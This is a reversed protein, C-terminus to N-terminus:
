SWGEPIGEAKAGEEQSIPTLKFAYSGMGGSGRWQGLGNSKGLQLLYQIAAEDVISGARLRLNMSFITGEPLVESMQIATVENGMKDKFRIPREYLLPESQGKEDKVVTGAMPQGNTRRLIDKSALAFQQIPKCDLAMSQGIDTKYAFVKPATDKSCSTIIRANEKLNGLIMHTSIMIRGDKDRMFCTSKEAEGEDVMKQFKTELELSYALIGELDNPMDRKIGTIEEYRRVIGKLEEFQKSDSIEDGAYKSLEKTLKSKIKNAEKIKDQNKQLVHQNYISASPCTGFMMRLLLIDLKYYDFPQAGLNRANEDFPRKAM